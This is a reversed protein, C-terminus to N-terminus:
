APAIEPTLQASAILGHYRAVLRSLPAPCIVRFALDPFCRGIEREVVARRPLAEAMAVYCGEFRAATLIRAVDYADYEPCFLWSAVMDPAIQHVIQASLREFSMEIRSQEPTANSIVPLAPGCEIGAGISLGLPKLPLQLKTM